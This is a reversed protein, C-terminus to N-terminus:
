LKFFSTCVVLLLVYYRMVRFFPLYPGGLVYTKCELHKIFEVLLIIGNSLSCYFSGASDFIQHSKKQHEAKRIFLFCLVCKLVHGRYM